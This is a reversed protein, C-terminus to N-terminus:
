TVLLVSCPAALLLYRSLRARPDGAFSDLGHSGAIVLDAQYQELARLCTEGPNGSSVVLESVRGDTDYRAVFAHLWREARGDIEAQVAEAEADGSIRRVQRAYWDSSAHFAVVKAEHMAGLRVAWGFAKAGLESDDVAAVITRPPASPPKRVLLVPRVCAIMLQEATSGLPRWREGRGDHDGVVVLDSENERALTPVQGAPSGITTECRIDTRGLRGCLEAFGEATAQHAAEIVEDTTPLGARAAGEPPEELCHVFTCHANPALHRVAWDAATASGPEFDVAVMIERPTM